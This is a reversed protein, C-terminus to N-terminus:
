RRKWILKNSFQRHKKWEAIASSFFLSTESRNLSIFVKFEQGDKKKILLYSAMTLSNSFDVTTITDIDSYFAADVKAEKTRENIWYGAIRKNTFYNGSTRTGNFWGSHTEFIIIKEGKDLIGLGIIYNTDAESLESGPRIKNCSALGLSLVLLLFSPLSKTNM